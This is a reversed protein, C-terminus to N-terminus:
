GSSGEKAWPIHVTFVSGQGIESQVAIRGGHRNVISYAVALGLGTGRGVEKTTYFPEFIHQLTAPDIGKGTDRVEFRIFGAPDAAANFYIRGGPETAQLGNLLLNMFVQQLNRLNGRMKPLGSPVETELRVKALMVQNRILALTSQVVEEASLASFAPRETRAFDLLNKVIDAAREAQSLIDRVMESGEADLTGGYDESFAEGTLLINNLPNNLEHAIGATFTGLAAMKRAQLLNEQNAELEQAMRNFARTLGRIEMLQDPDPAIPSFDGRAVRETTVHFVDLPRLIGRSILKIVLVMLLLVVGLFAYPLVSAWRLSAHIRQRKTAIIQGALDVLVKGQVRVEERAAPPGGSLKRFSEAYSAMKSRFEHFRTHGVVLDMDAALEDVLGDIRQLYDIGESLSEADSYLLLNKEFRRVELISNLLDDYREGLLLRKEVQHLLWFNFMTLLGASLLIVAFFLFIKGKISHFFGGLAGSEAASSAMSRMLSKRM